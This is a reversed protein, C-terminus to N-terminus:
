WGVLGSHLFSSVIKNATQGCEYSGCRTVSGTAYAWPQPTVWIPMGSYSGVTRMAGVLAATSATTDPTAPASSPWTPGQTMDNVFFTWLALAPRKALFRQLGYASYVGGSLTMDVLDAVKGGIHGRTCASVPCALSWGSPKMAAVADGWATGLQGAGSSASNIQSDGDITVAPAGAFVPQMDSTTALDAEFAYVEDIYLTSGSALGGVVLRSSSGTAVFKHICVGWAGSRYFAISQCGAFFGNAAASWGPTVNDYTFDYLASANTISSSVTAFAGFPSTRVFYRVVYTNGATTAFTPSQMTAGSATAAFACGSGWVSNRDGLKVYSASTPVTRSITGTGSAVSWTASCDSEMTGNSILNTRPIRVSEWTSAAIYRALAHGGFSSYHITDRYFPSVKDASTTGSLLNPVITVTFSGTGQCKANTMEAIGYTAHVGLGAHYISIPYMRDRATASLTSTCTGPGGTGSCPVYLTATSDRCLLYRFDSPLTLSQESLGGTADGGPLAMECGAYGCAWGGGLEVSGSAAVFDDTGSPAPAIVNYMSSPSPSYRDNLAPALVPTTDIVGSPASVGAASAPRGSGGGAGGGGTSGNSPQSLAPAGLAGAAIIALLSLARRM